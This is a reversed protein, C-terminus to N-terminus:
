VVDENYLYFMLFPFKFSNSHSVGRINAKTIGGHLNISCSNMNFMRKYELMVVISCLIGSSQYKVLKTSKKAALDMWGEDIMRFIEQYTRCADKSTSTLDEYEYEKVVVYEEDDRFSYKIMEFRRINCVPLEHTENSCIEQREDVNMIRIISHTERDKLAEYWELDQYHLTNGEIYSFHVVPAPETWVGTNTWLKKDYTKFGKLDKTLVDPDIKLLYNFEKFKECMTTEYDFLNTEIRLIESIEQEDDYDTEELDSTEDNTPEIKNSGLKWYDWLAGKTFIDM